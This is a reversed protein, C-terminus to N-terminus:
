IARLVEAYDSLGSILWYIREYTIPYDVELQATLCERLKAARRDLLDLADARTAPRPVPAAGPPPPPPPEGCSPASDQRERESQLTFALYPTQNPHQHFELNFQPGSCTMQVAVMSPDATPEIHALYRGIERSLADFLGQGSTIPYSTM